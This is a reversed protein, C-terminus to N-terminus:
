LRLQYLGYLGLWRPIQLIGALGYGLSLIEDGVPTQVMLVYLAIIPMWGLQHAAAVAENPLWHSLINYGDLPPVQILTLVLVGAEVLALGGLAAWLYPRESPRRSRASRRTTLPM